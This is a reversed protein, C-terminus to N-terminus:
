RTSSATATSIPTRASASPPRSATTTISPRTRSSACRCSTARRTGRGSRGADASRDADARPHQAAAAGRGQEHGVDRRRAADAHRVFHGQEGARPERRAQHRRPDPAPRRHDRAGADRSLRRRVHGTTARSNGVSSSDIPKRGEDVAGRTPMTDAPDFTVFDFRQALVFVNTVFDGGGGPHRVARQPLRRVLERGAGLRSQVRSERGAAPESRDAAQRHGEDAAPRRRGSRDLEGRVAAARARDARAAADQVGRRGRSAARDRSRSRDHEPAPAQQRAQVSSASRSRSPPVARDGTGDM